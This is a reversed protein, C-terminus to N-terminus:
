KEKPKQQYCLIFKMKDTGSSRFLQFTRFNPIWLLQKQSWFLWFGQRQSQPVHADIFLKKLKGHHGNALLYKDGPLRHRVVIPLDAGTLEIPRMIIGSQSRQMQGQNSAFVGVRETASIQHWRNLKLAIVADNRPVQSQNKKILYHDYVKRFILQDALNLTAQPRVQDILAVMEQLQSQKLGAEPFCIQWALRLLQKQIGPAFTQLKQVKGTIAGATVKIQAREFLVPAFTKQLALVDTLDENFQNIHQNFRPNESKLQPIVHHRLRNRFYQDSANTEDEFFHLARKQAYTVLMQKTYGLLPRVLRGSAFIRQSKLSNIASLEGSRTLNMLVTEALDDSHHATVLINYHQQQMVEAFFQYRFQRAANEVGSKPHMEPLWDAKFFRIQHQQLYDSLYETELVSQARLHHDVYVVAFKPRQPTPLHRVLDLLVMSDVGGSVALLLRDTRTWLREQQIHQEFHNQLDIVDYDGEM